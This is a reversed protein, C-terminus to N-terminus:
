QVGELHKAIGNVQRGAEHDLALLAGGLDQAVLRGVLLGPVLSVVRSQLGHLELHPSSAHHPTPPAHHSPPMIAPSHHSIPALGDYHPPTNSQAPLAQPSPIEEQSLHMGGDHARGVM